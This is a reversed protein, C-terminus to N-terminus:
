SCDPIYRSFTQLDLAPDTSLTRVAAERVGDQKLM